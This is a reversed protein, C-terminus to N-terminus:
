EFDLGQNAHNKLFDELIISAALADIQKPDIKFNYRPSNKMREQAEFTTLTEDQLFIPLSCNQSLLAKFTYVVQTMESENGDTYLPLGIVIIDIVENDIITLIEQVLQQDSEYIIRGYPLPYPDNNTKYTALGTVRKGYDIALIHKTM